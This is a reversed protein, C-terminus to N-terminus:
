IKKSQFSSFLGRISLTTTVSASGALNSGFCSYNGAHQGSVSDINLSSSRKNQMLISAGDLNYIPQENFLWTINYPFDGHVVACNLQFFDGLHLPEDPIAFPAM